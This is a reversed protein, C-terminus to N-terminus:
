TGHQNAADMLGDDVNPIEGSALGRRAGKGQHIFNEERHRYTRM